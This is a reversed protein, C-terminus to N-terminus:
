GRILNPIPLPKCPAACAGVKPLELYSAHQPDHLVQVVGALSGALQSVPPVAHPFDNPGVYLRLRHGAPIRADTPFIEIPLETAEGPAM